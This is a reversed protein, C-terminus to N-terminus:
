FTFKAEGQVIRHGTKYDAYGFNVGPAPQKLKGTDDFTMTLASDGTGNFTRNPHNLFNYGSFRFTLKRQESSGFVFNKFASIDSNFFGPGTLTPFIYTGQQGPTAFPSFCAGNVYEGTHLGHRPNCIVKPMLNVDSSGIVNQNSAQIPLATPGSGLYSSGAPIWASYGFNSTVAAQLDAGSQFQTIGSLQWGNVAGKAFANGSRLNPFQYVYAANFINRRNNPLTGYNHALSTPDGTASGNEGRVGLAKSFTYNIMYILHGQQKNWTAQLSNYNSYMKHNIIKISSYPM